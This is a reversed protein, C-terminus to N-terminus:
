VLLEIREDKLLVEGFTNNSFIRLLVFLSLIILEFIIVIASTKGYAQTLSL